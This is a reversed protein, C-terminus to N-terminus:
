KIWRQDLYPTIDDITMFGAVCHLYFDKNEITLTTEERTSKIIPTCEFGVKGGNVNLTSVNGLTLIISLSNYINKSWKKPVTVPLKKGRLQIRLISFDHYIFNEFEVDDISLENNFMFKIKEKHIANDFWM